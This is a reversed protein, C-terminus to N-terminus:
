GLFIPSALLPIEEKRNQAELNVGPVEFKCSGGCFSSMECGSNSRLVRGGFQIVKQTAYGAEYSYISFKM